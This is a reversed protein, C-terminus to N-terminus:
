EFSSDLHRHRARVQVRGHFEDGLHGYDIAIVYGRQLNAALSDIWELAPQNFVGKENSSKSTTTGQSLPREVFVFKDDQLDVLKEM